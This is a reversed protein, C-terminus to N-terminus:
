GSRQCTNLASWTLISSSSQMRTSSSSLTTPGSVLFFTCRISPGEIRGPPMGCRAKETKRKLWCFPVRGGAGPLALGITKAPRSLAPRTASCLQQQLLARGLLDEERQVPGVGAAGVREM